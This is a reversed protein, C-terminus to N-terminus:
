TSSLENPAYPYISSETPLDDTTHSRRLAASTCLCATSSTTALPRYAYAICGARNEIVLMFGLEVDAKTTGGGREEGGPERPTVGVSSWYIVACCIARRGKANRCSALSVNNRPGICSSNEDGLM